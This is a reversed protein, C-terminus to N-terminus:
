RTGGEFQSASFQTLLKSSSSSYEFTLRGSTQSRALHFRNRNAIFSGKLYDYHLFFTNVSRDRQAVMWQAIEFNIWIHLNLRCWPSRLWSIVSNVVHRCRSFFTCPIKIPIDKLYMSLFMCVIKRSDQGVIMANGKRRKFSLNDVSIGSDPSFSHGAHWTKGYKQPCCPMVHCKRLVWLCIQDCGALEGIQPVPLFSFKLGQSDDKGFNKECVIDSWCFVAGCSM